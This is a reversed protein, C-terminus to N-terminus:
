KVILVKCKAYEAVKTSVSGLLWRKARRAAM